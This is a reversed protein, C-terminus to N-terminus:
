NNTQKLDVFIPFSQYFIYEEGVYLLFIDFCDPRKNCAYMNKVRANFIHIGTFHLLFIIFYDPFWSFFHKLHPHLLHGIFSSDPYRILVPPIYIKQVTILSIYNSNFKYNCINQKNWIYKSIQVILIDAIFIQKNYCNKCKQLM